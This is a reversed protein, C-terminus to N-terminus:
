CSSYLHLNGGLLIFGPTPQLRHLAHGLLLLSATSSGQRSTVHGGFQPTIVSTLSALPDLLLFLFTHIEKLHTQQESTLHSLYILHSLQRVENCYSTQVHCYSCHHINRVYFANCIILM